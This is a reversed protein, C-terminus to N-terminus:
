GDDPTRRVLRIGQRCRAEAIHRGLLQLFPNSRWRVQLSHSRTLKLAAGAHGTAVCRGAMPRLGALARPQEGAAGFALHDLQLEEFSRRFRGRDKVDTAILLRRTGPAYGVFDGYREEPNEPGPSLVDITWSGAREHFEWLERWSELPQVALVMAPSKPIAQM